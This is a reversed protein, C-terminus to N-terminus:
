KGAQVGLETVETDGESQRGLGSWGEPRWRGGGARPVARLPPRRGPLLRSSALAPQPLRSPLLPPALRRPAANDHCRPPSSPLFRAPPLPIHHQPPRWRLQWQRSAAPHGPPPQKPAVPAAATSQWITDPGARGEGGTRPPRTVTLGRTPGRPTARRPPLAYPRGQAHPRPPPQGTVRRSM